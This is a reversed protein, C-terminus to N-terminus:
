PLLTKCIHCRTYQIVIGTCRVVLSCQSEIQTSLMVMMKEGKPFPLHDLSHCDGCTLKSHCSLIVPNGSWPFHERGLAESFWWMHELFLLGPSCSLNSVKYAVVAASCTNVCHRQEATFSDIIIVSPLVHPGFNSLSFM